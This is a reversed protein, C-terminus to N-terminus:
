IKTLISNQVNVVGTAKYYKNGLSGEVGTWTKTVTELLQLHLETVLRQSYKLYKDANFINKM